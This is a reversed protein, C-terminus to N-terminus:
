VMANYKSRETCENYVRQIELLRREDIGLAKIIRKEIKPTLRRQGLEIKNILSGDVGILAALKRQSLGHVTRVARLSNVNLIM